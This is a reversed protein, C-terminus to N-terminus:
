DYYKRELRPTYGNAAEWSKRTCVMDFLNGVALQRRRGTAIWKQKQENWYVGVCGSKNLVSIVKNKENSHDRLNIKSNNLGNGDIHDIDEKPFTGYYLCWCVTHCEITAGLLKVRQYFTYRGKIVHGARKGVLKLHRKWDLLRKFHSQPRERWLLTGTNENLTFCENFYKIIEPPSTKVGTWVLNNKEMILQTASSARGINVFTKSSVGFL